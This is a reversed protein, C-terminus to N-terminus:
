CSNKVQNLPNIVESLYELNNKAIRKSNGFLYPIRRKLNDQHKQAQELSLSSDRYSASIDLSIERAKRKAKICDYAVKVTLGALAIGSIIEPVYKNIDGIEM